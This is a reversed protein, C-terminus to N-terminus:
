PESRRSEPLAEETAPEALARFYAAIDAAYRPLFDESVPQLIQQREGAPLSGWLEHVLSGVSEPLTRASLPATQSQGAAPAPTSGPQSNGHSGDPQRSAGGSERSDAQRDQRQGDETTGAHQKGLLQEGLRQMQELAQQQLKM